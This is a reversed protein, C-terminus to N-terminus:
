PTPTRDRKISFVLTKNIDANEGSEMELEGGDSVSSLTCTYVTYDGMEVRDSYNLRSILSEMINEAEEDTESFVLIQWQENYVELSENVTGILECTLRTLTIYPKALGQPAPFSTCNQGIYAAIASDALIYSRLGAKM